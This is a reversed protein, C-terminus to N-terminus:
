GCQAKGLRTQDFQHEFTTSDDSIESGAKSARRVSDERKVAEGNEYKRRLVPM